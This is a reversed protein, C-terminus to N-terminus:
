NQPWSFLVVGVEGDPKGVIRIPGYTLIEQVKGDTTTEKKEASPQGYIRRIENVKANTQHFFFKCTAGAIQMTSWRLSGVLGTDLLMRLNVLDVAETRPAFNVFDSSGTWHAAQMMRGLDTNSANFDQGGLGDLKKQIGPATAKNAYARAFMFAARSAEKDQTKVQDGKKVLDDVLKDKETLQVQAHCGIIVGAMLLGHRLFQNM